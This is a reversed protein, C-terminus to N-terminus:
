GGFKRKLNEYIAREQQEKAEVRQREKNLRQELEYDTEDRVALVAFSYSDGYGHQDFDLEFGPHQAQLRQLMEIAKSIPGDLGYGYFHDVKERIKEREVKGGM